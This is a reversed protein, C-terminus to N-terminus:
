LLQRQFAYFGSATSQWCSTRHRRREVREDGKQPGLTPRCERTQGPLPLNGDPQAARLSKVPSGGPGMVGERLCQSNM